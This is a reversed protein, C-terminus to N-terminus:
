DGITMNMLCVLGTLTIAIGVLFGTLFAYFEEDKNM